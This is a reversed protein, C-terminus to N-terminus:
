ADVSRGAQVHKHCWAESTHFFIAYLPIWPSHSCILHLSVAKNSRADTPVPSADLEARIIASHGTHLDKNLAVLKSPVGRSLQFAMGHVPGCLSLGQHPGAYLHVPKQAQELSVRLCPAPQVILRHLQGSGENSHLCRPGLTSQCVHESSM